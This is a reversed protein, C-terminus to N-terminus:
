MKPFTVIRTMMSSLTLSLYSGRPFSRM